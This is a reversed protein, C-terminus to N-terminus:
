AAARYCFAFEIATANQFNANTLGTVPTTYIAASTANGLDLFLPATITTINTYIGLAVSAANTISAAFPLGTLAALGTSSGKNSLQLYGSVFVLRGIKVYNGGNSAGYTIGTTGGGFSIGPTWTGEEYDDLTNANASPVQTAPFVIGGGTPTVLGAVTLGSGSLQAWNAGNANFNIASIAADVSGVFMIDSANLGLMRTATGGATRGQLYQANAIQVTGSLTASTATIAAFAQAASWTNAGNLLPIAGGSTGTAVNLTGGAFSLLGGIAVASWSDAGSRYHITNTGTLAELAALDNALAFTPNGAIGAPNAITLGAAPAVLTRGAFSDPATQVIIGNSNFAALAGLTADWPQLQQWAAGDSYTVRSVTANWALGGSYDAAAPLDANAVPWLRFPVDMLGKFLRIVSAGFDRLWPPGASPYRLDM